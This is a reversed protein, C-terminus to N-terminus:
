QNISNLSENLAIYTDRLRTNFPYGSAHGDSIPYGQNDQLRKLQGSLSTKITNSPTSSNTISDILPKIWAILDSNQMKYSGSLDGLVMICLYTLQNCFIDNPYEITSCPTELISQVKSQQSATGSSLSILVYLLYLYNEESLSKSIMTDLEVEIATWLNSNISTVKSFSTWNNLVGIEFNAAIKPDAETTSPLILNLDPKDYGWNDMVSKISDAWSQPVVPIYNYVYASFAWGTDLKPPKRNIWTYLYDRNNLSTTKYSWVLWYKPMTGESVPQNFANSDSLNQFLLDVNSQLPIGQITNYTKTLGYIQQFFNDIDNSDVNEQPGFDSQFKIFSAYVSLQDKKLIYNKLAM